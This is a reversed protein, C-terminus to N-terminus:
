SSFVFSASTAESGIIPVGSSKATNSELSSRFHAAIAFAGPAVASDFYISIWGLQDGLKLRM